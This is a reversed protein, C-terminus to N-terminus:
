VCLFHLVLFKIIARNELFYFTSTQFVGVYFSCFSSTANLLELLNELYPVCIIIIVNLGYKTCGMFRFPPSVYDWIIHFNINRFSKNSHPVITQPHKVKFDWWCKTIASFHLLLAVSFTIHYMESDNHFSRSM